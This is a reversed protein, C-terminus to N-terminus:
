QKLILYKPNIKVRISNFILFDNITFNTDERIKNQIEGCARFYSRGNFDKMSDNITEKWIEKYPFEENLGEPSTFIHHLIFHGYNPNDRRSITIKYNGINLNKNEEDYSKVKIEESAKKTTQTGKLEKIRDSVKQLFQNFKEVKIDLCCDGGGYPIEKLFDTNELLSQMIQRHEVKPVGDIGAVRGMELWTTKNQIEMNYKIDALVLFIKELSKLSLNEIQYSM